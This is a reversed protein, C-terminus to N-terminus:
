RNRDVEHQIDQRRRELMERRAKEFLDLQARAEDPQGARALATALAYRVEYGAPNLELARAFAPVAGSADDTDLRLRGIAAHLAGNAPNVLLAAVLEAFAADTQGAAAYASALEQRMTADNPNLRVAQRFAEIASPVDGDVQALRGIAVYIASRGSLAGALAALYGERAESVRNEKEDDQAQRFRLLPGDIAGATAPAVASLATVAESYHGSALLAFAPGTSKNGVVPVPLITDSVADLMVFPANSPTATSRLRDYAQALVARARALEDASTGSPRQLVYYAKIPNASDGSWAARFAPSAEETRGSSDLTLARLLQLDSSSSSPSPLAAAADLERLADALRGRTRYAVAMESHLQIQRQTTADNLEQKTRAEQTALARDWEVLAAGLRNAAQRLAAPDQTVRAAAEALTPVAQVFAVPQASVPGPALALVLALLRLFPRNM